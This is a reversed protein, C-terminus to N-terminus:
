KQWKSGKFAWNEWGNSSLRFDADWAVCAWDLELGQVQFETAALEMHYSSDVHEGDELFWKVPDPSSKVHIGMPRLREAYSSVVIGYRETGRARDKLWSKAKDLSRTVVIPYSNLIDKLSNRATAVELDLLNKVFHSVKESRFSRMSTKLHLEPSPTARLQILKEATAKGGYEEEVLQNSAFVKWHPFSQYLSILWETIGAEGTHIEQGGGVLCVVVAWDTHRDMYGILFSSESQDFNPQGKKRRMFDVTKERDWARQAEDFLAVHEAPPNALDALGEDRFHHVNQIFSKVQSRAKGIPLQERSSLNRALAEQLISVLPGNGSLFVSYLDSNRDMYKTAINLGVLTKGAGPVGTLFVISKQRNLRSNEIIESISISTESLNKAGADSRSIQEVSHGRYLSLAAEVITPTPKYGSSDWTTEDLEAYNGVSLVSALTGALKAGNTCIPTSVGDAHVFNLQVDEASAETAVLVPVVLAEHSAEHFNKLDLAYDMVQNIDSRSFWNSGVKFELIIVSHKTVIVVDIRKGMRPISYEFYIRGSLEPLISQLLLIQYIWSDRQTQDISFSSEAAIEGLITDRNKKRFNAISDSYYARKIEMDGKLKSNIIM